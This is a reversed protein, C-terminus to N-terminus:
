LSHNQALLAEVDRLSARALETRTRVAICRPDTNDLLWQVHDGDFPGALVLALVMYQVPRQGRNFSDAGFLEFNALQKVPQARFSNLFYNKGRIWVQLSVCCGHVERSEDLWKSDGNGSESAPQGHASIEFIRVFNRKSVRQGSPAAHLLFSQWYLNSQASDAGLM